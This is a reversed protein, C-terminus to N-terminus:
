LFDQERPPQAQNRATASYNFNFISDFHNTATTTDFVLIEFQSRSRSGPTTTSHFYSVTQKEITSVLDMGILKARKSYAFSLHNGSKFVPHLSHADPSLSSNTHAWMEGISFPTNGLSNWGISDKFKLHRQKTHLRNCRM